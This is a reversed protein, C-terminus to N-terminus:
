NMNCIGFIVSLFRGVKMKEQNACDNSKVNKLVLALIMVDVVIAVVGGLAAIIIIIDQLVSCFQSKNSCGYMTENSSRELDEEEEEHNIAVSGERYDCRRSAAAKGMCRGHREDGCWVCEDGKSSRGNHYCTAETMMDRCLGFEEFDYDSSDEEEDSEIDEVDDEPYMYYDLVDAYATIIDKQDKRKEM